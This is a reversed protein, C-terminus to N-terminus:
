PTGSQGALARWRKGVQVSTIPSLQMETAEEETFHRQGRKISEGTREVRALIGAVLQLLKEPRLM